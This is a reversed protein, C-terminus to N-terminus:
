TGEMIWAVVAHWTNNEGCRKCRGRKVYAM